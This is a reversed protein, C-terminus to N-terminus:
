KRDKLGSKLDDIIAQLHEIEEDREEDNEPKAAGTLAASIEILGKSSFNRSLIYKTYFQEKTMSPKFIRSYNKARKRLGCVELLGKKELAKVMKFLTAHSFEEPGLYDKMEEITLEKNGDWLMNMLKDERETLQM